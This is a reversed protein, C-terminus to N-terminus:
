SLNLSILRKGKTIVLKNFFIFKITQSNSSHTKPFAYQTSKNNGIACSPLNDRRQKERVM